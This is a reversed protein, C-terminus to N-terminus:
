PQDIFGWSQLREPRDTCKGAAKACPLRSRRKREPLLRTLSSLRAKQSLPFLSGLFGVRTWPSIKQKAYSSPVSSSTRYNAFMVQGPIRFFFTWLKGISGVFIRERKEQSTLSSTSLWCPFTKEGKGCLLFKLRFFTSVTFCIAVSHARASPRRWTAIAPPSSGCTVQTVSIAVWERLSGSRCFVYFRLKLKRQCNASKTLSSPAKKRLSSGVWDDSRQGPLPGRRM